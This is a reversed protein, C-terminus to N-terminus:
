KLKLIEFLNLLVFVKIEIYGVANLNIKKLYFLFLSNSM